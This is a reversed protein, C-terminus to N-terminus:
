AKLLEFARSKLNVVPASLARMARATDLSTTWKNRQVPAFHDVYETVAQYGAWRTGRIAKNTNAETFLRELENTRDTHRRQTTAPADSSPAPFLKDVIGMFAVDTLTQEIMQEAEIQFADQYKFTLGLAQRAQAIAASAGRTHRVSFTSRAARLAAAQTNACVVRVPTVLFRFASSGDHSNLAALYLDVCDVGGINMHQPMKMTVFVERGGKLSGATEFHAGSEDVLANLLHTHEENQIPQYKKGVVGLVDPTGSVPNTRVTAFQDPVSLTTVGEESLMPETRLAVKRVDWNTLLALDLAEQANMAGKTVTGLRHWADERASVFAATGNQFIEIRHTM